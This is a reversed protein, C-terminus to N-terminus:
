HFAIQFANKLDAILEDVDELGVSIRFLPGRECSWSDVVRLVDNRVPILLSEFGGWSGGIGFLRLANVFSSTEKESSSFSFEFAFTNTSGNFDREWFKHGPCDQLAPHLVTKIQPQVKLWNAIKYANCGQQQLRIPLTRLGRLALWVDDPSASQGTLIFHERVTLWHEKDTIIVGLVIDAHGGIHKTASHISINVGKSIAPFYLPTAWTNDMITTIGWKKAVDIISPIDQVEYTLSGPSELFIVKTNPKVLKEIEQGVSSSYYEVKIDLKSLVYDCYKRTPGFVSDVVLIHEGAALFASIATTLSSLGSSTCMAAYGGELQAMSIEFNKVNETGYRGYAVKDPQMRDNKAGLYEELTPYLYTSGRSISPNVYGSTPSNSHRLKKNAVSIRRNRM